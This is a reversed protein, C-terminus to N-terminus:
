ANHVIGVRDHGGGVGMGATYFSTFPYCLCYGMTEIHKEIQLSGLHVMFVVGYDTVLIMMNYDESFGLIDVPRTDVRPSLSLLINLKITNGLVWGADGDLNTKRKWVRISFGSLVLFGLGGGDAPMVLFRCDDRSFADFDFADRPVDIVSLNQSDLDFLLIGARRGILLWCVSNGVM